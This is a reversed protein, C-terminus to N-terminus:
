AISVLIKQRKGTKEFCYVHWVTTCVTLVFMFVIKQDVQCVWIFVFVIECWLWTRPFFKPSPDVQVEKFKIEKLIFKEIRCCVCTNQLQSVWLWLNKTSYHPFKSFLRSAFAKIIFNSIASIDSVFSSLSYQWQTFM